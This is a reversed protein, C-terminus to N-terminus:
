HEGAGRGAVPSCDWRVGVPRSGVERHAIALVCDVKRTITALDDKQIEPPALARRADLFRGSEYLEVVFAGVDGDQGDADVFVGAGIATEEGAEM